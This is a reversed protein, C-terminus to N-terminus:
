AKPSRARTGTSSPAAAARHAWHTPCAAPSSVWASPRAPARQRRVFARRRAGGTRRSPSPSYAGRSPRRMAPGFMIRPIRSLSLPPSCLSVLARAAGIRHMVSSLSAFPPHPCPLHPSPLTHPDTSPHAPPFTPSKGSIRTSSLRFSCTSSSRGLCRGGGCCGKRWACVRRARRCAARWRRWENWPSPGLRNPRRDRPRTVCMYIFVIIYRYVYIYVYMYMNRYVICIYM